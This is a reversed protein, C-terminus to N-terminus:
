EKKSISYIQINGEQDGVAMTKGDPSMSSHTVDSTNKISKVIRKRALDLIQIKELGVLVLSKGDPLFHLGEDGMKNRIDATMEWSDTNFLRLTFDSHDDKGMRGATALTKGDPSFDLHYVIIGNSNSYVEKGTKVDIVKLPVGPYSSGVALLRGDPSFKVSQIGDKFSALKENIVKINKVDEVNVLKVSGDSLGWAMLKSDASFVMPFITDKVDGRALVAINEGTEIDWFWLKQNRLGGKALESTSSVLLKSDSSFIQGCPEFPHPLDKVVTWTKTDWVRLHNSFFTSATFYKGDPSFATQCIFSDGFKL